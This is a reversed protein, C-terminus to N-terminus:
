QRAVLFTSNEGVLDICREYMPAKAAEALELGICIIAGVFIIAPFIVCAWAKLTPSKLELSADDKGTLHDQSEDPKIRHMSLYESGHNQRAVLQGTFSFFWFYVTFAFLLCFPIAMAVLIADQWWTFGEHLLLVASVTAVTYRTILTMLALGSLYYFWAWAQSRLFPLKAAMDVLRQAEAEASEWDDRLDKVSISTARFARDVRIKSEDGHYALDKVERLFSDMPALISQRVGDVVQKLEGTLMEAVWDAPQELYRSKEAQVQDCFAELADHGITSMNTSFYRDGPLLGSYLDGGNAKLPVELEGLLERVRGYFEAPSRTGCSAHKGKTGSVVTGSPAMRSKAVAGVWNSVLLSASSTADRTGGLEASKDTLSTHLSRLASDMAEGTATKLDALVQDLFSDTTVFLYNRFQSGVEDIKVDVDHLHHEVLNRTRFVYAPAISIIMFATCALENLKGAVSAAAPLRGFFVQWRCLCPFAKHLVIKPFDSSFSRATLREYVIILKAWALIVYIFGMLIPVTDDSQANFLPTLTGNFTSSPLQIGLHVSIWQAKRQFAEWDDSERVVLDDAHVQAFMYVTVIHSLTWACLLLYLSLVIQAHSGLGVALKSILKIGLGSEFSELFASAADRLPPLLLIPAFLMSNCVFQMRLIHIPGIDRMARCGRAVQHDDFDGFGSVPWVFVELHHLMEISFAVVIVAYTIAGFGAMRLKVQQLGAHIATILVVIGLIVSGVRCISSGVVVLLSPLFSM